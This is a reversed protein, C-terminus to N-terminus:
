EGINLTEGQLKLEGEFNDITFRRYKDTRFDLQKRILAKAITNPVSAVKKYEGSQVVAKKVEEGVMSLRRTGVNFVLIKNLWVDNSTDKAKKPAKM